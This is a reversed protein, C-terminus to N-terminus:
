NHTVGHYSFDAEEVCEGVTQRSGGYRNNQILKWPDQVGQRGRHIFDDNVSAKIISCTTLSLQSFGGEFAEEAEQTACPLGNKYGTGDWCQGTFRFTEASHQGEVSPELRGGPVKGGREDVIEVEEPVAGRKETDIPYM